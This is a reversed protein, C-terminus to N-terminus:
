LRLAVGKAIDNKVDWHIDGIAARSAAMVRDAGIRTKKGRELPIPRRVRKKYPKLNAKKSDDLRWAFIYPQPFLGKWCSTILFIEPVNSESFPWVNTFRSM